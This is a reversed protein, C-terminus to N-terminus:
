RYRRIEGIPKIMMPTTGGPGSVTVEELRAPPNVHLMIADVRNEVTSAEAPLSMEVISAGAAPAAAPPGSSVAAPESACAGVLVFAALAAPAHLGTLKM